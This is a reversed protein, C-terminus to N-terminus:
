IGNLKEGLISSFATQGKEVYVEMLDSVTKIVDDLIMKDQKTFDSLVFNVVEQKEKPRGIGIRIRGYHQGIHLDINKLGNHGGASGGIKSKVQGMKLDMDDHIVIINEPTIKYFAMVSQVAEGSLNMYTQPKIAIVKQGSINGECILANNKKKFDSFLYRHCIEDVAMFGVNHHNNEYERGPNGLGVLLFM